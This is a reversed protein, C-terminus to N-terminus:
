TENLSQYNFLFYETRYIGINGSAYVASKEMNCSLWTVSDTQFFRFFGNPFLKLIQFIM